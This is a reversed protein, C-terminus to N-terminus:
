KPLPDVRAPTVTWVLKILNTQEKVGTDTMVSEVREEVLGAFVGTQGYPIDCTQECERVHFAPVHAGAILQANSDDLSSVRMRLKLRASDPSRDEATLDLETGYKRMEIASGNASPMPIEGGTHFSAPRGVPVVLQPEALVKALNNDRLWTVFGEVLRGDKIIEFDATAEKNPSLMQAPGFKDATTTLDKAISGSSAGPAFTFDTALKRAKTVSVEALCLKVRVQTVTGDPRDGANFSVQQAIPTPLPVPRVAAADPSPAVQAEQALVPMTLMLPVVLALKRAFM